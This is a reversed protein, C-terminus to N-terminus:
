EPRGHYLVENKYRVQHLFLGWAPATPGALSRDRAALREAMEECAMGEEEYLLLSGVMSRVMKWLFSQARVHFVLFPGEVAFGAAYVTRVRNPTQESPASFTSFDHTGVLVSALRNLRRVDPKHVIRHSYDRFQVEPVESPFVYYKYSRERADHRAHFTDDVEDVVRARVDHPLFSNLARAWREVPLGDIDTRFNIVQGSAHVGTDTRGAANVDVPHKHMRELAQRVAGEVTRHEKQIQWGHFNKGDYALTMRLNKM